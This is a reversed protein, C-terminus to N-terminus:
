TTVNAANKLVEWITAASNDWSFQQAQLFGAELRTENAQTLATIGQTISQYDTADCYFAAHGGVEPLASNHGTLVPVGCQFAELIPIGFGEFLSPFILGSSATLLRALDADPIHGLFHIRNKHPSSQHAEWVGGVDFMAGGAVVLHHPAQNQTCWLDFAQLIRLLNKRPNIAGIVFFYPAGGTHHNRTTQNFNESQPQFIDSAANQVVTIKEPQIHYRQAIDQKSFESVTLIHAAQQAFQPFRKDYYRQAWDPVWGPHHAFNLDHIVPVSPVKPNQPLHGDPSFFVDPQLWKFVLPLSWDFWLDWLWARRAPPPMWLPTVNNGYIFSPDYPADFLFYFHVEPHNQVLRRCIEHTFRGIGELKHARLLRTNVAVKL